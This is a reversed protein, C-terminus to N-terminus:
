AKAPQLEIGSEAQAWEEVEPDPAENDPATEPNEHHREDLRRRVESMSAENMPFRLTLLLAGLSFIINPVIALLFLRHLVEPTQPTTLKLNLGSWAVMYGVVLTCLSIEMKAMFGMVSTFLGERREGTQLEDLDCIDPVVANAITGSILLLPAVVVATVLLLYPHKPNLIFPQALAAALAVMAGAIMASRKGFKKSIPKLFPLLLFGWITGITGAIGQISTGLEKNGSCVYYIALYGLLAGSLREGFLQCVKVLLLIVFPKNQTTTKLAPLLPEHKKNAHTFREKCGKAAMIASSIIIVSVAASIYRMGIAADGVTKGDVVKADGFIPLLAVRFIWSASFSVIALFFGAVAAVKSRENYDDTLEYGVATWAMTYLGYCLYCLTGLVGLYILLTTESWAPNAWWMACLFFAGLVAGSILYPKRRGWRTHTNDSLHGLYPDAIADFFRPLMMAWGLVVANIGFGV